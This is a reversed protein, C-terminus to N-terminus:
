RIEVLEMIDLGRVLIDDIIESYTKHYHGYYWSKLNKPKHNFLDALIIRDRRANIRASEPIKYGVIKELESWNDIPGVGLPAVHTIITDVQDLNEIDSPKFEPVCEDAWWSYGEERFNVDISTGGGIFLINKGNQAFNVITLNSVLYINHRIARIPQGEFKWLAPRDHNGPASYFILNNADLFQSFATLNTEESKQAFPFGLGLDGVCIICANRLGISQLKGMLAKFNGHVDGLSLLLQRTAPAPLIM